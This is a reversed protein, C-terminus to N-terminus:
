KEKGNLSFHSASRAFREPKENDFAVALHQVWAYSRVKSGTSTMEGLRM